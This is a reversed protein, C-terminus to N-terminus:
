FCFGSVSVSELAWKGRPVGMKSSVKGFPFSSFKNGIVRGASYSNWNNEPAGIWPGSNGSNGSDPSQQNFLDSSLIREKDGDEVRINGGVGPKLLSLKLGPKKEEVIKNYPVPIDDKTKTQKEIKIPKTQMKLKGERLQRVKNLPQKMTDLGEDEFLPENEAEKELEEDRAKLQEILKRTKESIPEM